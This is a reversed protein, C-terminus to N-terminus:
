HQELRYGSRLCTQFSRMDDHFATLDRGGRWCYLQLHCVYGSLSSSSTSRLVLGWRRSISQGVASGACTVPAYPTVDPKAVHDNAHNLSRWGPTGPARRWRLEGGLAM